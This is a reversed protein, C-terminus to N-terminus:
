LPFICTFVSGKGVESDVLLTGQHNVLVHKAIALGLGTGGNDRSRSKDVRYFRETIRPINKKSIGIGNDTVKFIGKDKRKFWEITIKGHCPTYKIANTILNSFLSKLEEEVGMIFINKDLTLIIDQQKNASIIKADAHLLKLIKSINVQKKTENHSENELRSLLLLDDIIKEMRISQQYMQQFIKKLFKTDVNAEKLLVELYGHIVTLPTRLEHSVNAIFDSRVRELHKIHSKISLPLNSLLELDKKM